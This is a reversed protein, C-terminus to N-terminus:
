FKRSFQEWWLGHITWPSANAPVSCMKESGTKEAQCVAVPYTQAFEFYQFDSGSHKPRRAEAFAIFSLVLLSLIKSTM